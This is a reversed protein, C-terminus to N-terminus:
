RVDWEIKLWDEWGYYKAIDRLEREVGEDLAQVVNQPIDKVFRIAIVITEPEKARFFVRIDDVSKINTLRRVQSLLMPIKAEISLMLWELRTPTYRPVDM